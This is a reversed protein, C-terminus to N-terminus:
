SLILYFLLHRKRVGNHVILTLVTIFYSLRIVFFINFINSTGFLDFLSLSM